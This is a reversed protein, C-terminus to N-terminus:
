EPFMLKNGFGIDTIFTVTAPSNSTLIEELWRVQCFSKGGLDYLHFEQNRALSIFCFLCGDPVSSLKHGWGKWASCVCKGSLRYIAGPLLPVSLRCLHEGWCSGQADRQLTQTGQGSCPFPLLFTFHHYRCCCSKFCYYCCFCQCHYSQYHHIYFLLLLLPLLSFLLPLLLLLLFFIIIPLLLYYHYFLM